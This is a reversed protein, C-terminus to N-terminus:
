GCEDVFADTEESFDRPDHGDKVTSRIQAVFAVRGVLKDVNDESPLGALACVLLGIVDQLSSESAPIIQDIGRSFLDLLQNKRADQRLPLKSVQTIQVTKRIQCYDGCSATM